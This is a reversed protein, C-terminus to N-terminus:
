AGCSSLVDDQNWNDARPYDMKALIVVPRVFNGKTLASWRLPPTSLWRGQGSNWWLRFLHIVNTVWVHTTCITNTYKCIHGDYWRLYLNQFWRARGLPQMTALFREVLLWLWSKDAPFLCRTDALGFVQVWSFASCRMPPHMRVCPPFGKFFTFFLPPCLIRCLWGLLVALSSNPHRSFAQRWVSPVFTWRICTLFASM